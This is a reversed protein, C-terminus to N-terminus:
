ESPTEARPEVIRPIVSLDIYFRRGSFYISWARRGHPKTAPSRTQYDYKNGETPPDNRIFGDVAERIAEVLTEAPAAGDTWPVAILDLDREMSGHLGLAYGYFRAVKTLHPVMWAFAAARSVQQEPAGM